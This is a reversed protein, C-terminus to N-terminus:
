SESEATRQRLRFYLWEVPSLLPYVWFLRDPLPFTKWMRARFLIRLLLERRYRFNERLGYKFAMTAAISIEEREALFDGQVLARDAYRLIHAVTSDSQPLLRASWCDMTLYRRVMTLTASLEPLVDYGVAFDALMDLEAETMARVHAAIDALSKFFLWGDLTGHVCLYLLNERLPLTEVCLDGFHVSERASTACLRSGPMARNRFLRWHLDVEFGNNPNRYNIDKWHNRYFAFQRPTFRGVQFLGCYGANRLSRDAQPIAREDILLDLDGAARLGIDGFLTQALPLGKLVCVSLNQAQLEQVVRRLEGLSRLAAYSNKAALQRMEELVAQQEASGTRAINAAQLNQWVLPVLRHHRTLRLFRPWNMQRSCLEEILQRDEQRQPWRACLLMLDLEASRSSTVEPGLHKQPQL